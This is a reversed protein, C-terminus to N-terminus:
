RNAIFLEQVMEFGVSLFDDKIVIHGLISFWGNLITKLRIYQYLNDKAKSTSTLSTKPAISLSLM